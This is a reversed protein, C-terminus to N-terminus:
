GKPKASVNILFMTRLFTILSVHLLKINHVFFVLKYKWWKNKKELNKFAEQVIQGFLV